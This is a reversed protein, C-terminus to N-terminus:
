SLTTVLSTNKYHVKPGRSICSSEKSTKGYAPSLNLASPLVENHLRHVTPFELINTSATGIDSGIIYDKSSLM